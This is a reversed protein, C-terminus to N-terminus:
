HRDNGIGTNIIHITEIDGCSDCKWILFLISGGVEKETYICHMLSGCRPCKRVTFISIFFILLLAMIIFAIIGLLNM